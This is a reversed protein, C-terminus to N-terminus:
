GHGYGCKLLADITSKREYWVEAGDKGRLCVTKPLMDIREPSGFDCVKFRQCDEPNYFPGDGDIFEPM